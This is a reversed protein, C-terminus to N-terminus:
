VRRHSNWSARPPGRPLHTLQVLARQHAASVPRLEMLAHTSQLIQRGADVRDLFAMAPGKATPRDGMANAHWLGCTVHMFM